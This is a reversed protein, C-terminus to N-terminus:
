FKALQLCVNQARMSDAKTQLVVALTRTLQVPLSKDVQVYAMDTLLSFDAQVFTHTQLMLLQAVM